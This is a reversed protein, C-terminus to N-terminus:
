TSAGSVHAVADVRPAQRPRLLAPHWAFVRGALYSPASNKGQARRRDRRHTPQVAAPLHSRRPGLRVHLRRIAGHRSQQAKHPRPRPSGTSSHSSSAVHM